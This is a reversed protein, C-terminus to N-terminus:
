RLQILFNRIERLIENQEEMLGMLQNLNEPSLFSNERGDAGVSIRERKVTTVGDAALLATADMNDGGAGPNLTIISDAM